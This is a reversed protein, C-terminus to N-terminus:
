FDKVRAQDRAANGQHSQKLRSFVPPTRHEQRADTATSASVTLGRAQGRDTHFSALQDLEGGGRRVV